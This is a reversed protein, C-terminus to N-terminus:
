VRAINRFTELEHEIEQSHKAWEAATHNHFVCDNEM